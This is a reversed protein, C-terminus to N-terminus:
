TRNWPSGPSCAVINRSSGEPLASSNLDKWSMPVCSTALAEYGGHAHAAGVADAFERARTASRSAVAVLEADPVRGLADAFAHAIKGTAAIGWRM